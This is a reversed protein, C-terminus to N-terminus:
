VIFSENLLFVMIDTSPLYILRTPSTTPRKLWPPKKSSQACKQKLRSENVSTVSRLRWTVLQALGLAWFHHLLNSLLAVLWRWLISTQMVCHSHRKSQQMLSSHTKNQIACCSSDDCSLWKWNFSLDAVPVGISRGSANNMEASLPNLRVEWL